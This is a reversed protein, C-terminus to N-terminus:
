GYVELLKEIIIIDNPEDIEYLSYSPMEYYTIDGSIRCGSRKFAEKTTIYLAGNETLRGGYDQRRPRNRVDYNPEIDGIENFNWQFSHERVVSLISEWEDDILTELAENIHKTKLLPSTAQILTLTNFEHNNAFEVMVSETSAFDTSVEVSRGIVEVKDFNFSEVVAKIKDSDTSVYIRDLNSKNAANLTWWILPKGYVETINKYPISKSGGRAPILCINM